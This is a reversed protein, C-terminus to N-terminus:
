ILSIVNPRRIRERMAQNYLNRLYTETQARLQINTLVELPVGYQIPEPTPNYGARSASPMRPMSPMKGQIVQQGGGDDMLQSAAKLGAAIAGAGSMGGFSKEGSSPDIAASVGTKDQFADAMQNFTQGSAGGMYERVDEMEPLKSFDTAEMESQFYDGVSEGIPLSSELKSYAKLDDSISVKPDIDSGFYTPADLSERRKEEEKHYKKLRLLDLYDNIEKM